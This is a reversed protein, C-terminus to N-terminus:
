ISTTLSAPELAIVPAVGVRRPRPPRPKPGARTLWEGRGSTALGYPTIWWLATVWFIAWPIAFAADFKRGRFWCIGLLWLSGAVAGALLKMGIAAPFALGLAFLAVVVPCAVSLGIARSLFNLRTLLLKWWPWDAFRSFGFRAFAISERVDSRAWRTLMRRLGALRTPAQTLVRATSQFKVQCGQALILNTVARDEGINAPRGLYRQSVWRDLVPRICRARYASLAGPTCLVSGLVSEAARSFDFAQVFAVSLLRPILGDDPNLVGVNGAVAGVTPDAVLPAVLHRLADPEVLSDSDVTVIVEGTARAIGEYLAWRKGRNRPCRITAVRGPLEAAARQIHQWTDDTSGDDLAIIRMRGAPYDSAALSLLTDRVMRGENYAPVVVTLSPLADRACPPTPRYILALALRIMNMVLAFLGLSGAVLTLAVGAPHRCIIDHAQRGSDLAMAAVVIAGGALVLALRGAAAWVTAPPPRRAPLNTYDTGNVSCPL